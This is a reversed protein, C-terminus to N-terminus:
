RPYSGTIKKVWGHMRHFWPTGPFFMFPCEGPVVSIGNAACFGIADASVAGAGGARYM